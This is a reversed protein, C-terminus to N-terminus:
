DEQTEDQQAYKERHVIKDVTEHVTDITEETHKRAHKTIMSSLVFGGAGVAIKKYLNLGEPTTTKIVNGVVAGVGTAVVVDAVFKIVSIPNM